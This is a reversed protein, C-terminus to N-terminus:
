FSTARFLAVGTALSVAIEGSRRLARKGNSDPVYLIDSQQMRVDEAKLTLIKKVDLSVKQRDGTTKDRRLIFAENSKATPQLGGALTVAELVTMQQRENAMVFGGPTRVAGVVYVVGARPVRIVDGGILPINYKLDDSDLLDILNITFTTQQSNADDASGGNSDPPHPARTVIIQSGADGSIGGAQSLVELLTTQRAAQVVVPQRVAGIVTIPESHMEKVTVSIQPNTVLGNTQLLEALKAEFQLTTLGAAQVQVPILPISVFGSANVRLDRSLEPVEFVEIGLLDGGGIVYDGQKATSALALQVIRDNTDDATELTPAAGRTKPKEAPNQPRAVSAFLLLLCLLAFWNPRRCSRRAVPPSARM